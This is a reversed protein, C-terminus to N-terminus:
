LKIHQCVQMHDWTDDLAAPKSTCTAFATTDPVTVEANAAPRCTHLVKICSQCFMLDQVCCQIYLRLIVIIIIFISELEHHALYTCSLDQRALAAKTHDTM